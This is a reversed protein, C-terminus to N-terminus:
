DLIKSGNAYKKQRKQITIIWAPFDNNILASAWSAPLMVEVINKKPKESANM